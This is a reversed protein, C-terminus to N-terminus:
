DTNMRPQIEDNADMRANAVLIRFFEYSISQGVLYTPYLLAGHFREGV